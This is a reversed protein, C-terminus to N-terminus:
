FQRSFGIEIESDTAVFGAASCYLRWGNDSFEKRRNYSGASRYADIGSLVRNVLAVGLFLLSRRYANKSDNRLKRYYVRNADSDWNWYYEPTDPYLQAESREYLLELQNYIDINDYYTLTEFYSDPKGNVDAGAHRAAWGIYDEKKWKGYLRFGIFNSWILTEAGGFFMMKGRSETYYQGAGPLIVSLGLAKWKSKAGEIKKDTEPFDYFDFDDDGGAQALGEQMRQRITQAQAPGSLFAALMIAALTTNLIRM